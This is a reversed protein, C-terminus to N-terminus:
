DLTISGRGDPVIQIYTQGPNLLVQDGSSLYTYSTPSTRSSKSWSIKEAMGNTIFYGEGKGVDSMDQRDENDIRWTKVFQVLINKATLQKSSSNNDTTERAMHPKGNRGRLYLGTEEVYEYTTYTQNGSYTIRVSRANDGSDLTVPINSYKLVPEAGTETRVRNKEIYAYIRDSSTYANQWNNKEKTIRWYVQGNDIRDVKLASFDRGAQPSQGIHLYLADHEKAFDLFYHRASRIPGIYPIIGGDSYPYWFVAMFRSIGGEVIVEYIVQAYDLGGHPLPRSGQNDIMVAFPRLGEEPFVFNDPYVAPPPEPTPESTPTPTPIPTPEPTPTATPTPEATPQPAPTETEEHLTTEEEAFYVETQPETPNNLVGGDLLASNVAVVTAIVSCLVVVGGIIAVIVSRKKLLGKIKEM